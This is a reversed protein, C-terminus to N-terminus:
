GVLEVIGKALIIAGGLLAVAVVAKRASAVSIRAHVGHGVVLGVILAGAAVLWAEVPMTPLGKATLSALSVTMFFLQATAAFSRQQWRTAVAYVTVAPGGVGAIANMFGSAAGALLASTRSRPLAVSPEPRARRDMAVLALLALVVCAGVAVQLVAVPAHRALWAGPLVALVGPVALTLAHRLDVERRLQLTLLGCMVVGVSNILLVGTYPGLVLVVFPSAVLSFGLGTVRQTAAGLVIAAALGVLALLGLDVEPSRSTPVGHPM